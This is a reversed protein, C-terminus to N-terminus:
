AAEDAVDISVLRLERGSVIEVMGDCVPCLLSPLEPESERLCGLCRTRLPITEIALEAGDLLTDRCLIEFYFRLSEPVVSTFRGVEVRLSTAPRTVRSDTMAAVAVEILSRAIGLEHM